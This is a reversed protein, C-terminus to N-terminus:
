FQRSSTRPGNSSSTEANKKKRQNGQAREGVLSTSTTTSLKKEQTGQYKWRYKKGAYYPQEVCKARLRQQPSEQPFSHSPEKRINRARKQQLSLDDVFKAATHYRSGGTGAKREPLSQVCNNTQIGKKKKTATESPATVRLYFAESEM